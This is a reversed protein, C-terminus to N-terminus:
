DRLARVIETHKPMGMARYLDEAEALLRGARDRDGPLGRGLLMAAYWRRTHAQEARHPMQEAQQLATRFHAEAIDRQGGAAAAMGAVRELLRGDPQMHTFNGTRESCWRVLPYLEAAVDLEGLAVFAEVGGMLIAWSGWGSAQGPRPLQDRRAEWMTLVQRRLGVHASCELRLAWEAGNIVGEPALSEAKEAHLLAADWDGRLFAAVSLWSWSWSLWALGADQCLQMDRHAFAELVEIDGTEFWDALVLGRGFLMLAGHDGLREAQPRGEAALRRADAFRGVSPASFAVVGLIQTLHRGEGAERLAELGRLGCEVAQRNEMHVHHIGAKWTLAYGGSVADGLEEAMELARTIRGMGEDYRGAGGVAFGSIALLRAREVGASDGMASLAREALDHAKTWLGGAVMSWAAVSVQGIAATDGLAEYIDICRGWTAVAAEFRGLGREAMGLDLLLAALARRDVHEALSEARHLQRLADEFATSVLSQNGALRLYRFLTAPDAASGAEILHAAITGAETPPDEALHEIAEAVRIHHRRRRVAPLRALLTQRILEHGFWYEEQDGSRRTVLLGAREAQELADILEDGKIDGIAEWLEFSVHRGAVAAISLAGSVTPDLRDLRRDIVLRVNAPVDLEDIPIDTRFRGQEDLLSGSEALHRFVEEVFFANGDTEHYIAARVSDPPTQRSLAQLLAGVDSESHRSLSLRVAQRRRVLNGLSDALQPTIDSPSDRHTGVILCPIASLRDALHELLQLTPEDAWHLDEVVYLRPQNRSARTVYERIANFTYRRQQEPPLEVPPPIDPLARRLEPVLRAFEAAEDGLARRLEDPESSAMAAEILEVWPMYPLDRGSEYCHGVLVRFRSGAEAAFEEALRSKGVGPEGSILVLGGEGAAARDLARRLESREAERGVFPTRGKGDEPAASPVPGAAAPATRALEPDQRLIATELEALAPGPEIGLEEGLTRRLDQYARLAEAQRGCRYLALMRHGWFAERLPHSRTLVELEAPLEGHRGCQLDAEIRLELAALRAEELRAAEMAAFPADGVDALARGRWLSLADRLTEGAHRHDNCAAEERAREVLGDFTAVDLTEPGARIMYGPSRTVLVEGAGCGALVKRLRSIAVRLSHLAEKPPTDRWLEDILRESPVVRDVSLLLLALLARERRAGPSVSQGQAVVDVPGLVRFEVVV